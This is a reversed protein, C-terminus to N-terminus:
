TMALRSCQVAPVTMNVSLRRFLGIWLKSQFVVVELGFVRDVLQSLRPELRSRRCDCECHKSTNQKIHLRGIVIYQIVIYQLTGVAVDNGNLQTVKPM